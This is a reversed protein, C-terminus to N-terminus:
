EWLKVIDNMTMDQYHTSASWNTLLISSLTLQARYLKVIDEITGREGYRTYWMRFPTVLFLREPQPISKISLPRISM